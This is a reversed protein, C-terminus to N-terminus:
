PELKYTMQHLTFGMKEFFAQSRVNKPSINAYLEEDKHKVLLTVLAATGYHKGQYRSHVHIGIENKHTLYIRGVRVHDENLLVYDEAYPNATNFDVHDEWSPMATHSINQEPTKDELLEYFFPFDEPAVKRLTINAM